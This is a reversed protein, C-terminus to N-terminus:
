MHGFASVNPAAKLRSCFALKTMWVEPSFSPFPDNEVAKGIGYLNCVVRFM